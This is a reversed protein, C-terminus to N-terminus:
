SDVDQIQKIQAIVLPNPVNSIKKICYFLEFAAKVKLPKFPDFAAHQWPYFYIVKWSFDPKWPNM